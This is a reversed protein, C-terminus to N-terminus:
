LFLQRKVDDIRQQQNAEMAVDDDTSPLSQAFSHLQTSQWQLLPANSQNVHNGNLTSEIKCRLDLPTDQSGIPENEYEVGTEIDDMEDAETPRLRKRSNMTTNTYLVTSASNQSVFQDYNSLFQDLDVDIRSRLQNM